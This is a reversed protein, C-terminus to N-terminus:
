SDLRKIAARLEKVLKPLSRLLAAQRRWESAKVVPWGAYDGAEHVSGTIGSRAGFRTNSAVTVHDAVGVGGALTVQDGISCSGSVGVQGCLISHSGIKTNHGVQVLNDIKSGLGVVTDGLAGRDVCANAGIDVRAALSVIGVQPFAVLGRQPDPRYGFGDAGIIAGNQIVSEPGIQCDERVVVGSHLVSAKGVKAGAYVTVNPFLQVNDELVVDEGVYSFADVRVNTGLSASPHVFAQPSVGQAPAHVLYFHPIISIIALFPDKTGLLCFGDPLEISCEDVASQSAFAANVGASSLESVAAATVSGSIFTICSKVAQETSCIGIINQEVNGQITAGVESAIESLPLATPNSIKRM